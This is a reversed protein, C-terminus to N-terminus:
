LMELRTVRISTSASSGQNACWGVSSSQHVWGLVNLGIGTLLISYPGSSNFALVTPSANKLVTSSKTNSSLVLTPYGDDVNLTSGASILGTAVAKQDYLVPNNGSIKILSYYASGGFVAYDSGFGCASLSTELTATTVATGATATGAADTLVNVITSSCQVILQDGIKVVSGSGIDAAANLQVGSITATTSSVSIIGGYSNTNTYVIAWRGTTLATLYRFASGTITGLTGATLTTGASVTVPLAGINAGSIYVALLRTSDIPRISALASGSTVAISTGITPTTGSVTIAILRYTTSKYSFVYTSGCTVGLRYIGENLGNPTNAHLAVPLTQTAATGVAITTGTLSLVVAEFATSSAMGSAILVKDTGILVSGVAPAASVTRVLVSTGFTKATNDWVVAQIAATSTFILLERTSDITVHDYLTSVATGVSLSIVSSNTLIANLDIWSTTTGDTSLVRGSNGTQAALVAAWSSTTGNTTLFKGSNGTQDAIPLAWSATTGNTTVFKGSNGTQAPLASSFATNAVFETTAIQTTSTGAAATPAAPTGTFTPSAIDAKIAALAAVAADAYATTAAKTSNDLASQTAFTVTAGTFVHTGTWTDGAKLGRLLMAVYVADFGTNILSYESRITASYGRSQTAPAGTVTYYPNAM